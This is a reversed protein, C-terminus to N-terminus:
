DLNSYNKIILDRKQKKNYIIRIKKITKIQSFITKIAKSHQYLFKKAFCNNILTAFIINPRTKVISFIISGKIEQYCDQKTMTVKKKNLM